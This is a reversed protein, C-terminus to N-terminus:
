GRGSALAPGAGREGRTSPRVRRVVRALRRRVGRVVDRAGRRRPTPVAVAAQEAARARALERKRSARVHTGYEVEHAPGGVAALHEARGLWPAAADRELTLAGPTGATVELGLRAFPAALALQRALGAGATRWRVVDFPQEAHWAGVTARLVDAAGDPAGELTLVRRGAEDAVRVQAGGIDAVPGPLPAIGARSAVERLLQEFRAHFRANSFDAWYRARARDAVGAAWAADDAVREVGAALAEVDGPAVFAAEDDALLEPIGGVRTTLIPTGLQMAELLVLPMSESRSALVLADAAAIHRLATRKPVEGVLTVADALGDRAVLAALEAGYAAHRVRGVVSLHVPLDPRSARLLRVAEVVDRQAKLPQVTGVVVLELRDPSQGLEARLAPRDRGAHEAAILPEEACTNPLVFTREPALGAEAAWLDRARQSVFVFDDQAAMLVDRVHARNWVDTAYYDFAEPEEHLIAVKRSAAHEAFWGSPQHMVYSGLGNVLHLRVRAERHRASSSTYALGDAPYVPPLANGVVLTSLASRALGGLYFRDTFAIGTDRKGFYRTVYAVDYADAAHGGASPAATTSGDM